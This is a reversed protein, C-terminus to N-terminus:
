TTPIPGPSLEMIVACALAFGVLFGMMTNKTYNPSSPATPLVASDVVKASTGEIISSIRKPLIYAIADAIREAEAPDPSTVTVKFIETSDVAAATVMGKLDRYTLDVGAYDIVDNLSERTKLIVIYSSVLSKAASIDGSELSLSADGISFSKNNVYFMASSEYMPTVLYFTGLFTGVGGVIAALIVIWIRRLIEGILRQLDVGMEEQREKLEDM